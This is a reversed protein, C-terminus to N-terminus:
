KFESLKSPKHHLYGQSYDMGIKIVKDLIEQTEVFEAITQMGLKHGLGNISEVILEDTANTCINKIFSGDIKLYDVHLNKLYGYSSMGSGFDDLSFKCGLGRLQNIFTVAFDLNRVAMTETIEFCLKANDINSFELEKSVFELFAFDGLSQGSLNVAVVVDVDRHSHLWKIANAVVFEDIKTMIGYKEASPIFSNPMVLNGKEDIMRILVEIHRHVSKGTSRIEQYYLLIRNEILASNIAALTDLETRKRTCRDGVFYAQARNRGDEKAVYCASDVKIMLDNTSVSNSDIEAYGISLGVKFVRDDWSFNFQQVAALLETAKLAAQEMSCSNLLVGFEDGGLRAIVDNSRISKSLLESIQILLQDGAIHGATDNIIKFQDLDMYMIIHVLNNRKASNFLVNLNREFERRNPLKTLEDHTAQWSLEIASQEVLRKEESLRFEYKRIRRVAYMTMVVLALIVIVSYFITAVVLQNFGAAAEAVKKDDENSLYDSLKDLEAFVSAQLPMLETSIIKAADEKSITETILKDILDNQRFTSTVSYGGQKKLFEKEIETDAIAMLKTRIVIFKSAISSFEINREDRYFPDHSFAILHSAIIRERAHLQMAAIYEKKKDIKDIQVLVLERQKNINDVTFKATLVIMVAIAFAVYAFIHVAAIKKIHKIM